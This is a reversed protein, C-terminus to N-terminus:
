LKPTLWLVEALALEFPPAPEPRALRVSKLKLLRRSLDLARSKSALQEPSCM